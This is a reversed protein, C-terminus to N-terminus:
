FWMLARVTIGTQHHSGGGLYEKVSVVAVPDPNRDHGVPWNVSSPLGQQRAADENLTGTAPAFVRFRGRRTTVASTCPIASTAPLSGVRWAL